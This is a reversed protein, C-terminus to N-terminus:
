KKYGILKKKDNDIKNICEKCFFNSDILKDCMYCKGERPYIVLKFQKDGIKDM